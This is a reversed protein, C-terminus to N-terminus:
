TPYLGGWRFKGEEIKKRYYKHRDMGNKMFFNHRAELCRKCQGCVMNSLQKNLYKSMGQEYTLSPYFDDDPRGGHRGCLAEFEM